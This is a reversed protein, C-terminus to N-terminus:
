APPQRLRRVEYAVVPRGFGKLELSGVHAREVAEETAAFSASVILTQGSSAHSCLQAALNTAPCSHRATRQYAFFSLFAKVFQTDLGASGHAL